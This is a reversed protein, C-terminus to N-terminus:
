GFKNQEDSRVVPRLQNVSFNHHNHKVFAMKVQQKLLLKLDDLDLQMEEIQEVKEGYM